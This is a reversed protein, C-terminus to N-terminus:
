EYNILKALDASGHMRLWSALIQFPGILQAEGWWPETPLSTMGALLILLTVVVGTRVAGVCMGLLRNILNWGGIRISDGLLLALITGIALTFLVLSLFAIDLRFGHHTLWPGLLAAWEHCFNLGIWLAFCWMFLSFIEYAFGRVWGIISVIVSFGIIAYDIWILSLM